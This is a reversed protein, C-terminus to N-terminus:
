VSQWTLLGLRKNQLIAYARAMKNGFEILADDTAERVISATYDDDEPGSAMGPNYNWEAPVSIDQRNFTIEASIAFWWAMVNGYFDGDNSLRFENKLDNTNM